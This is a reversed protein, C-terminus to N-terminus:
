LFDLRRHPVTSCTVYRHQPKVGTDGDVCDIAALLLCFEPKNRMAPRREFVFPFSDPNKKKKLRNKTHPHPRKRAPSQM